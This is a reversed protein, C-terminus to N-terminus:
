YVIFYLQFLIFFTSGGNVTSLIIILPFYDPRSPNLTLDEVTMNPPIKAESIVM